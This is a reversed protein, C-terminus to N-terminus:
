FKKDRRHKVVAKYMRGFVKAKRKKETASILFRQKEREMKMFNEYSARSIAGNNVAELVACGKEHVHSCDTFKCRSAMQFIDDFTHELGEATDAIGVERMGPNDILISGNALINLERHSTTHMGKHTSESLTSTKLLERGALKNILTSKGVGSSGLLCYTKGTQLIANLEAYGYETQNSITIVQVEKIRTKVQAILAKLDDAKILDVKSLVIIPEVGASHCMTLYREARNISFDRDVALIILGYDINTAIIQIGAFEGVSKRQLISKRPLIANIVAFDHDYLTLAVWDGVAPFDLRDKAGFRLNGTIEAEAEGSETVVTYREKHEAVIRGISFGSLNLEMRAKEFEETYGLSELKM